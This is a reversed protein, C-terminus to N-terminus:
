TSAITKNRMNQDPKSRLQDSSACIFEAQRRVCPRTFRFLSQISSTSSVFAFLNSRNKYNIVGMDCQTGVLLLMKLQEVM